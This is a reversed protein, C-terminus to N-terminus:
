TPTLKLWKIPAPTSAQPNKADPQPPRETLRNRSWCFHRKEDRYEGQRNLSKSSTRCQSSCKHFATGKGMCCSVCVHYEACCGGSCEDCTFQPTWPPCCNTAAVVQERLCAYGADDAVGAAQAQALHCQRPPVSPREFPVRPTPCPALTQSSPVRSPSMTPAVYDDEGSQTVHRQRHATVVLWVMSLSVWVCVVGAIVLVTAPRM